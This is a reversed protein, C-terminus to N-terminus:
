AGARQYVDRDEEDGQQKGPSEGKTLAL